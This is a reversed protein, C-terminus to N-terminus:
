TYLRCNEQRNCIKSCQYMSCQPPPCWLLIQQHGKRHCRRKPSVSSPESPTYARTGPFSWDWLSTFGSLLLLCVMLIVTFLSFILFASVFAAVWPPVIAWLFVVSLYFAAVLSAAMGIWGGYNVVTGATKGASHSLKMKKIEEVLAPTLSSVRSQAERFRNMDSVGESVFKALLQLDDGNEDYGVSSHVMRYVARGQVTRLIARVYCDYLWSACSLCLGLGM